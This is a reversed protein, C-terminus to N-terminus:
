ALRRLVAGAAALLVLGFIMSGWANDVVPMDEAAHEIGVVFLAFGIAGVFGSAMQSGRISSVPRSTEFLRVLKQATEETLARVEGIAEARPLDRGQSRDGGAAQEPM